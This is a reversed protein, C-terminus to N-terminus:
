DPHELVGLNDPRAAGENTPQIGQERLRVLQLGVKQNAEPPSRITSCMLKMM